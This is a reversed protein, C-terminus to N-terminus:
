KMVMKSLFAIMAITNYETHLIKFQIIIIYVTFVAALATKKCHIYERLHISIFEYVKYLIM